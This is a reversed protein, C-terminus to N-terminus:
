GFWYARRRSLWGFDGTGDLYWQESPLNGRQSDRSAAFRNRQFFRQAYCHCNRRRTSRNQHADLDVDHHHRGYPIRRASLRREVPPNNRSHLLAHNQVEENPTPILTSPGKQTSRSHRNWTSPDFQRIKITICSSSAHFTSKSQKNVVCRYRFFSRTTALAAIAKPNGADFSDVNPQALALIFRSADSDTARSRLSRRLTSKRCTRITLFLRQPQSLRFLYTTLPLSRPYHYSIHFFVTPAQGAAFLQKFLAHHRIHWTLVLSFPAFFSIRQPALM